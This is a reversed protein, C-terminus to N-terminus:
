HLQWTHSCSACIAEGMTRMVPTEKGNDDVDYDMDTEWDGYTDESRCVPCEIPDEDISILRQFGVPIAIAPKATDKNM